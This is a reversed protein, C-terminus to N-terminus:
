LMTVFDVKCQRYRLLDLFFFSFFFVFMLVNGNESLFFIYMYIYIHGTKEPSGFELDALM